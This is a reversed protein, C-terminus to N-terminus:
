YTLKNKNFKLTIILKQKYFDNILIKLVLFSFNM